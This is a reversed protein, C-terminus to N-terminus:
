AYFIGGPQFANPVHLIGEPHIEVVDFRVARNLWHRNMLYLMAAKAVRKQKAANVSLLGNGQSGTKRTKVEVFVIMDGALMVLDIEGGRTRYRRELCIMGEIECLYKEAALEGSVGTQYTQKM